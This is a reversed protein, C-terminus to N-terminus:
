MNVSFNNLYSTEENPDYTNNVIFTAALLAQIISAYKWRRM